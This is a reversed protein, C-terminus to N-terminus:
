CHAAVKVKLLEDVFFYICICFNLVFTITNSFFIDIYVHVFYISTDVSQLSLLTFCLYFRDKSSLALVIDKGM